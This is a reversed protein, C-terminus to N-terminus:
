EGTPELFYETGDGEAMWGVGGPISKNEVKWFVLGNECVPGELVGAIEGPYLQQIIKASTDPAERVRNPSPTNQAVKA